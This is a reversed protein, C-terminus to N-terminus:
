SQERMLDLGERLIKQLPQKSTCVFECLAIDEESLEALGLGEMKEFDKTIIAKMLHQPYIDMPMVSEYQGTVVFARQEGHTNTEGKFDSFGYLINPLTASVSPRRKLPLLWGFMEFEDGEPIVTILNDKFSIFSDGDIQKGSLVNGSVIRFNGENLNDALLDSVSAGIYTKVIRPQKVGSGAVKMVRSTDYIGETFLKGITVVGDVDLTWVSDGTKIPKTHHIQVGVNGAPHPGAFYTIEVNDAGTFADSPKIKGGSVGLHVKGETLRNLVDIGKQFAVENGAVSVSPDVSLPGTAMTSIFIDRPVDDVNPVIDFPRKNLLPWAGSKALYDVLAERGADLSPANHRTFEIQKDALITVNTIARKAGRKVEVVEGSVPSCYMIEPRKKDYFLVDGAKVVDGEAVVVKPIPSIGLFDTPQISFRNISVTSLDSSSVDGRLDLNYGKTIPVFRGKAFSPKKPGFISSLM